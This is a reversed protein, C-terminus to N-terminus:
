HRFARTRQRLDAIGHWSRSACILGFPVTAIYPSLIIKLALTAEGNSIGPM